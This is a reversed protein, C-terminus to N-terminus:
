YFGRHFLELKLNLSSRWDHERIKKIQVFCEGLREEEREREIQKQNNVARGKKTTDNKVDM